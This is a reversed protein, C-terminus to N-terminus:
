FNWELKMEKIDKDIYLAMDYNYKTIEEKAKDKQEETLGYKYIARIGNELIFADDEFADDEKGQEHCIRANELKYKIAGLYDKEQICEFAAMSLNYKQVETDTINRPNNKVAEKYPTLVGDPYIYKSYQKELDAKTYNTKNVTLYKALEPNYKAIKENAENKQENPLFHYLVKIGENLLSAERYEHSKECLNAGSLKYEIAGLFDNKKLCEDANYAMNYKIIWDGNPKKSTFSVNPLQALVNSTPISSLMKTESNKNIDSGKNKINGLNLNKSLSVQHVGIPNIATINM